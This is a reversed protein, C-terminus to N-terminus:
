GGGQAAAGAQAAAVQEPTIRRPLATRSARAEAESLGLWDPNELLYRQIAAAANRGLNRMQEEPSQTLGSGILTGGTLSEFVYLNEGQSLRTQTADDWVSVKVILISKPSAVLPIGPAAVVYGEISVGLHLLTGGEYRGLRADIEERLIAAFREEDVTRSLPGRQPAPAVVVNHGLRFEGMERPAELAPDGAGCAALLLALPALLRHM